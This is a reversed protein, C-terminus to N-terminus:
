RGANGGELADLANLAVEIAAKDGAILLADAGPIWHLGWGPQTWDVAATSRQLSAVALPGGFRRALQPAPILAIRRRAAPHQRSQPMGLGICLVGDIWTAAISPGLATCAAALDKIPVTPLALAGAKSRVLAQDISISAGTKEAVKRALEQWSDALVPRALDNLGNPIMPHQLRQSPVQPDGIEM